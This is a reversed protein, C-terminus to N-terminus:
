AYFLLSDYKTLDPTSSARIVLCFEAMTASAERAMDRSYVIHDDYVFGTAITGHGSSSHYWHSNYTGTVPNIDTGIGIIVGSTQFIIAAKITKNKINVGTFKIYKAQGNLGNSGVYTLGAGATNHVVTYKGNSGASQGASYVASTDVYGSGNHYGAPITVKGSSTPTSTWSGRNAM